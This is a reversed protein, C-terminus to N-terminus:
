QTITLGSVTWGKETCSAVLDTLENNQDQITRDFSVTKSDTNTTAACATLISKISNYTLKKCSTFSIDMNISGTFTIDTLSPCNYFMSSFNTGKSTNLEPVSTLAECYSFMYSFDTGNSTNLEPVSTLAVCSNFMYSFNTGKSTDLAPVSTLAVCSNFMYSFNTGNSTNLEPVSTLASCNSFMTTFIEGKSLDLAPISTLAYCGSFMYSFKLGNSTDLASVSTLADCGRFMSSFDTGKSTNLEPVSTLAYCTSFMSRFNTGNSTNLEPVSTLASCNYFMSSFDTGNSTDLAPVSTLAHCSSFMSSFNTSASFDGCVSQLASCDYFMKSTDKVLPMDFHFFQLNYCGRFMYKANTIETFDNRPDIYKLSSCMFFTGDNNNFWGGMTNGGYTGDPERYSGNKWKKTNIYPLTELSYCNSFQVGGTMNSVDLGEPISKLKHCGVFSQPYLYDPNKPIFTIEKYYKKYNDANTCANLNMQIEDDSMILSGDEVHEPLILHNYKYLYIDDATWGLRKLGEEDAYPKLYMYQIVSEPGLTKVSIEGGAYEGDIEYVGNETYTRELRETPHVDVNVSVKNLGTYEEDPVVSTQGNESITISKEQNHIEPTNVDIHVSNYGYGKPKYDYTGNETLEVDLKEVGQSKSSNLGDGYGKDVNKSRPGGLFIGCSASSYLNSNIANCQRTNLQPYDDKNQLLFHQLRECYFDAKQQYYDHIQNVESVPLPEMKEDSVRQLGANDIKVSTIMCINACSQYALYYQCQLLLRGYTERVDDIEVQRKLEDLLADGLIERLNIEQSERIAPLLLKGSMNDSINTLNKISQETILLIDTM